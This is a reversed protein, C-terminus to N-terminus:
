AVPLPERAPLTELLEAARRPGPEAAMRAAIRRANERFSPEHLVREVADRLNEPTCHKPSLRLGVGAEVIRQANDAKDWHTPVIVLPVGSQLATLVTGAGGTTVLAACRPLLDSHSVWRELRINDALAGLGLSEPERQPGSTMIVRMPRDALGQVAARLVFPGQHHATGETVHVWPLDTPVTDLWAPAPAGSPKNWVCPGVYHVSAPLDRREYDLEPISPVLYLPMRAMFANVSSPMPPLGYGARTRNVDGRVGVALVDGLRTIARSLLRTRWTRPPPLGPGWPPADPGPILCGMLTTLIAVPVRSTESIVLIPGWMATETVIADPQWAGLIARIDAVQAPVTGALWDRFARMLLRPAHWGRSAKVEAATVHSWIKAEDLQDYAFVEFGEDELLSRVSPSTYFAVKHGRAQVERAVSVFPNIHGVFPWVTFLFRAM